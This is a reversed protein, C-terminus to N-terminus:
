APVLAATPVSTTSEATSARASGIREQLLRLEVTKSTVFAQLETRARSMEAIIADKTSILAAIERELRERETSMGQIRAEASPILATLGDRAADITATASAISAERAAFEAALRELTANSATLTTVSATLRTVQNAYDASLRRLSDNQSTMHSQIHDSLARALDIQATLQPMEDAVVREFNTVTARIEEETSGLDRVVATFAGIRSAFEVNTRLFSQLLQQARAVVQQMEIIKRELAARHDAMARNAVRIDQLSKELDKNAQVVRQNEKLLEEGRKELAEQASKLRANEALIQKATHEVRGTQEDLFSNQRNLQAISNQLEAGEFANQAVFVGVISIVGLLGFGIGAFVSSTFVATAVGVVAAIIGSIMVAQPWSSVLKGGISPLAASALSMEGEKAVIAPTTSAAHVSSSATAVPTVRPVAM